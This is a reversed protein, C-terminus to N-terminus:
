WQLQLAAAGAERLRLLGWISGAILVAAILPMWLGCFLAVTRRSRVPVTWALRLLGFWWMFVGLLAVVAVPIYVITEPPQVPWDAVAAVRCIPLLALILGAPILPLGWATAYGLAAALRQQGRYRRQLSREVGRRLVAMLLAMLVLAAVFALASGVLAQPVNWWWAIIRRPGDQRIPTEASMSAAQCWGRGSPSQPENDPADPVFPVGHWGSLSFSCVAAALALLLLNIRGFRRSAPSSRMLGLHALRGGGAGWLWMCMGWWAKRGYHESEAYPAHDENTVPQDVIAYDCLPCRGRVLETLRHGCAPCRAPLDRVTKLDATSGTM